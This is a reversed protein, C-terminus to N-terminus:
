LTIQRWCGFGAVPVPPCLLVSLVKWTVVSHVHKTEFSSMKSPSCGMAQQAESAEVM